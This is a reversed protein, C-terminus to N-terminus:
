ELRQHLLLVIFENGTRRDALTGRELKADIMTAEVGNSRGSQQARTCAIFVRRPRKVFIRTGYFSLKCIISM